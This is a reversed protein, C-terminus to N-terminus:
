QDQNFLKALDALRPDIRETNCSCQHENRNCGCQPCLGKCEQSCIPIYPLALFIEEKCFPILDFSEESIRHIEDEDEERIVAENEKLFREQFFVNLSEQFHDLCRGCAFSADFQCSGTVEVLGATYRAEGTVEVTSLHLVDENEDMVEPFPFSFHIRKAHGKLIELEEFFIRM